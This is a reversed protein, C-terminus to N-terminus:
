KARYQVMKVVNSVNAQGTPDSTAEKAMDKYFHYTYVKTGSQYGYQTKYNDSVWEQTTFPDCKFVGRYNTGNYWWKYATYGGYVGAYELEYDLDIQYYNTGSAQYGYSQSGGTLSTAYRYYHYVTKYNSSAVVQRTGVYRYTESTSQQSDYYNTPGNWDITYTTKSNDRTYGSMSSSNSTKWDRYTYTWKTNVIQAGSPMESAKAWILPNQTWHAYLTIDDSNNVLSAPTVVTNGGETFWGDFTYYDRTPVPLEETQTGYYATRETETVTGGNANFMITYTGKIYKQYDAESIAIIEGSNFSLYNNDVIDGVHKCVLINGNMHLQPYLEEKINALEMNKTLLADGKQSTLTSEGYLLLSTNDSSFVVAFNPATVSIESFIVDQSSTKIPVKRTSNFIANSILTENADSVIEVNNFSRITSLGGYFGFFETGQPVELVVADIDTCKDSVIIAIVKAGSSVVAEAVSKNAAHAIIANLGEYANKGLSTVKDSIRAVNLKTCGAFANNGIRTINEGNIYQLSSCGSFANDPIETIYDSLEVAILEDEGNSLKVKGKFANEAIGTVKIVTGDIVKYEPIIVYDDNGTYGTVKGDRSYQLGSSGAVKEVVYDKIDTPIEFSIVGTQNDDYSSTDYSYDEFRKVEEDLVSYNCVFYSATAIDYGVVLFVHATTAWVWRHYGDITNTTSITETITETETTAYTIGTSYSDSSSKQSSFGQNSTESGTKIYSEGYGTKESIRESITKSTSTTNTVSSSGGRGSESNWSGSTTTDSGTHTVKGEQNSSGDTTTASWNRAQDLAHTSSESSGWSQTSSLEGKIKLEEVILSQTYELEASETVSVDKHKEETHSDSVNVSGGGTGSQNKTNTNMNTDQTSNYTVTTSSGSRGSSVYWNNSENTARSLAETEDIGHEECWQKDVSMGESWGNSLTIGYNETTANAVTKAYNEIETTSVTKSHTVSQQTAVGGSVIKGFDHIVSVPVNRIEGIEYTFLIKNDKETIIPEDTTKKTRAQNRDSLWNADYTKNGSEGIPIEKIINGKADSWGVFGYGSLKPSPLVKGQNITYTTDDVPILDSKFQITYKIPSWHAYLIVRGTTGEKITTVLNNASDYWGEFKYGIATAKELEHSETDPDYYGTSTYYHSLNPNNVGNSMLYEDDDYLDYVISYQKEELKPIVEQKILVKHCVSCHSGETLGTSTETAPVAPDIVVTHGKAKVFTDALTIEYSGDEDSFYKDCKSCYWYAIIGDEECTAVVAETATMEHFCRVTHPKLEVDYGGANFRRLLTVDKGNITNDDNVDAADENIIVDYGGAIYRRLLTVDKGNVTKDGNVDGPIYDIVTVAGNEISPYVNEMAGDFIDGNRYSVTVPLTEGQNAEDSITFTLTLFVGDETAVESESDYIFNCPSTFKGPKTFGLDSFVGNSVADTLTLKSDYAVTLTAGAIGPNNTIKLDVQVSSNSAAYQSVVTIKPGNVDAAFVSLPLCSFIMVAALLLSLLRKNM